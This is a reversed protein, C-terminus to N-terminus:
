DAWTENGGPDSRDSQDADRWDSWDRWHDDKWRPGHDACTPVSRGGTDVFAASAWGRAGALRYWNPNGNVRQGRVVCTVHVRSGPPLRDVVASHTTPAARVNLATRSVVTGRIPGRGHRGDGRGDGDGHGHAHTASTASTPSTPSSPLAAAAAGTGATAAVFTGGTLLIAAMTRLAPTTRM